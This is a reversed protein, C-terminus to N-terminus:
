GGARDSYGADERGNRACASSLELCFPRRPHGGLARPSPCLPHGAPSATPRPACLFPSPVGKPDSQPNTDQSKGLGLQVVVEEGSAKTLTSRQAESEKDKFRFVISGGWPQLVAPAWLHFHRGGQTCHAGKGPAAPAPVHVALCGAHEPTGPHVTRARSRPLLRYSM